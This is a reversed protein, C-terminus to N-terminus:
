HTLDLRHLVADRLFEVNLKKLAKGSLGKLQSLRTFPKGNIKTIIDGVKLSIEKLAPEKAEEIALVKFGYVQSGTRMQPVLKAKNLRVSLSTGNELSADEKIDKFDEDVSFEVTGIAPGDKGTVATQSLYLATAKYQGPKLHVTIEATHPLELHQSFVTETPPRTHVSLVYYGSQPQAITGKRSGQRAGIKFKVKPKLKSNKIPEVFYPYFTEAGQALSGVLLFGTLAGLFQTFYPQAM